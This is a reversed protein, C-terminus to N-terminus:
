KPPWNRWQDPRPFDQPLGFHEPKPERRAIPDLRRRFHEYSRVQSDEINKLIKEVAGIALKSTRIQKRMADFWEPPMSSAKRSTTNGFQRSLNRADVVFSSPPTSTQMETFRPIHQLRARRALSVRTSLCSAMQAAIGIFPLM